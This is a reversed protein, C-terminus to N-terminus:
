RPSLAPLRSSPPELVMGCETWLAVPLDLVVLSELDRESDGSWIPMTCRRALSLLRMGRRLPKVGFEPSRCCKMVEELAECTRKCESRVGTMRCELERFTDSSRNQPCQVSRWRSSRRWPQCHVTGLAADPCSSRLVLEPHSHEASVLIFVVIRVRGREM